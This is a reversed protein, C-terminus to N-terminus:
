QNSRYQRPAFALSFSVSHYLGNLVNGQPAAGTLLSTQDVAAYNASFNVYRGINQSFQAGGSVADATGDATQVAAFRFFGGTLGVSTQRGFRHSFNGKVSDVVAAALYGSSSEVGRDYTLSLSGMRFTGLAAANVMATTVPPAIASNSSNIWQPGAEVSVTIQRTWSYRFGIPVSNINYSGATDNSYASAGFSFHSFEFQGVLATRASLNRTIGANALEGSTNLGGGNPFNLVQSGGGLSLTTATGVRYGFEGEALNNVVRTNIDLITAATSSGTGSGSIPEGTGAVGSFGVTPAEPNDKVDDYALVSWRGQNFTQSLVLHHFMGTGLSPGAVPWIYGGIYNLKLPFHESSHSYDFAGSAIGTSQNNASNSGYIYATQAYRFSYDLLNQTVPQTASVGPLFSGGTAEPEVQAHTWATAIAFMVALGLSKRM